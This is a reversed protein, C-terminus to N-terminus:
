ESKPEYRGDAWTEIAGGEGIAASIETQVLQSFTKKADEDSLMTLIEKLSDFKSDSNVANILADNAVERKRQSYIGM